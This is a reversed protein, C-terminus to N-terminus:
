IRERCSFNRNHLLETPQLTDEELEDGVVVFSIWMAFRPGECFSVGVVLRPGVVVVTGGWVGSM